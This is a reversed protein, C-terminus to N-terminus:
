KKNKRMEDSEIKYGASELSKRTIGKKKLEEFNKDRVVTNGNLSILDLDVKKGDITRTLKISM